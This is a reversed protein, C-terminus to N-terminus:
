KLWEKLLDFEAQTKLNKEICEDDFYIEKMTETYEEWSKNQKIFWLENLSLGKEKIIRLIESKEYVINELRIRLTHEMKHELELEELRKLETEIIDLRNYIACYLDGSMFNRIEELAELPTLEKNM